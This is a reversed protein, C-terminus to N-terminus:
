ISVPKEQRIGCSGLLIDKVDREPLGYVSYLTKGSSPPRLPIFGFNISLFMCPIPNQHAKKFQPLM